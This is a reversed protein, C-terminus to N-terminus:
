LSDYSRPKHGHKALHECVAKPRPEQGDLMADILRVANEETKPNGRQTITVGEFVYDWSGDNNRYVSVGRHAYLAPGTYTFTKAQHPTLASRFPNVATITSTM